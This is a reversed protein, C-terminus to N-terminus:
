KDEKEFSKENIVGFYTSISEKSMLPNDPYNNYGSQLSVTSNGM